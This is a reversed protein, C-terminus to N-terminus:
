IKVKDQQSRMMGFQICDPTQNDLNKMKLQPSLYTQFYQIDTLLFNSPKIDLHVIKKRHCEELACSIDSALKWMLDEPVRQYCDLVEKLSM